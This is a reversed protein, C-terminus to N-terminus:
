VMREILWMFALSGMAYAMAPEVKISRTSSVRLALLALAVVLLQAIEIGVHFALLATPLVAEAVGADAFATAFGLGHVLGIALAAVYPQKIRREEEPRVLLERALWVLTAAIGIEAIQSPLHIWGLAAAGMSLAHGTTFATLALLVRRPRRLLLTLGLVLLLHDWGRLLHDIGSRVMPLVVSTPRSDAAVVFSDESRDLLGQARRGDALRLDVVADVNAETLGTVGFAEGLLPSCRLRYRESVHSEHEELVMTGIRQCASPFRLAFSANRPMVRSRKLTAVMEDGEQELTVALPALPHAVGLTPALMLLMFILWRM